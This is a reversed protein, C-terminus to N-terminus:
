LPTVANKIVNELGRIMRSKMASKACNLKMMGLSGRSMATPYVAITPPARSHHYPNVHIISLIRVFNSWVPTTMMLRTMPLTTMKKEMTLRMPVSKLM